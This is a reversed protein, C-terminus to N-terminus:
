IIELECNLERSIEGLKEMQKSVNTESRRSLVSWAALLDFRYEFVLQKAETEAEDFASLITYQLELVKQVTLPSTELLYPSTIMQNLIFNLRNLGVLIQPGLINTLEFLM